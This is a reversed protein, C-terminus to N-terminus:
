KLINTLYSGHIAVLYFSAIRFSGLMNYSQPMVEELIGSEDTTIVTEVTTVPIEVEQDVNM